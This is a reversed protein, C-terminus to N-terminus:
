GPVTRQSLPLSTRLSWSPDEGGKTLVMLFLTEERLHALRGLALPESPSVVERWVKGSHGQRLSNQKM